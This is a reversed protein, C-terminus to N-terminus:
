SSPMCQRAFGLLSGITRSRPTGRLWLMGFQRGEPPDALPVRAVKSPRMLPLTIEPLLSVGVGQEVM